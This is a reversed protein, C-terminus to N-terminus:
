QATLKRRKLVPRRPIEGVEIGGTFKERRKAMLQTGDRQLHTSGVSAPLVTQQRSMYASYDAASQKRDRYEDIGKDASRPSRYRTGIPHRWVHRVVQKPATEMM